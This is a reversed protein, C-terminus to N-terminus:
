KTFTRGVEDVLFMNVDAGTPDFIIGLRINCNASSMGSPAM